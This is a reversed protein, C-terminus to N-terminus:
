DTGRDGCYSPEISICTANFDKLSQLSIVKCCMTVSPVEIGFLKTEQSAQGM